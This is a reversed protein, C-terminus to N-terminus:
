ELALIWRIAAQLDEDSIKDTGNPPMPIDGWVGSGGNRVKAMLRAPAEADNRYRAAVERYAPGMMKREVNHCAICRAKKIIAESAQAPAAAALAGLLAALLGARAAAAMKQKKLYM